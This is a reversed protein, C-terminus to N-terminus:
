PFWPHHSGRRGPEAAAPAHCLVRSSSPGSRTIPEDMLLQTRHRMPTQSDAGRSSAEQCNVTAYIRLPTSAWSEGHQNRCNGRKRRSYFPRWGQRSLCGSVSAELVTPRFIGRAATQQPLYGIGSGKLEDSVTDGGSYKLLGLLGKM